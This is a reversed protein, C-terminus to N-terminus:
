TRARTLFFSMIDARSGSGFLSRLRLSLLSPNGFSPIVSKQSLAGKYPEFEDAFPWKASSVSNVKASFKSFDSASPENLGQFLARLRNVSVWEHYRSLWDLAESLLRPDYQAGMATLMVLEEIQVLCDKHNRNVGRVGLETFLSWCLESLVENFEQSLKSM